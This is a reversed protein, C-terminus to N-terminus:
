KAFYAITAQKDREIQAKLSAIGDFKQESRIRKYWAVQVEEGYINKDFDLIHVEVTLNKNNDKFTPVYGVNCVGDYWVEQVFIRVAYM